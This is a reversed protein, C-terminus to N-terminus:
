KITQTTAGNMPIDQQSDVYRIEAYGGHICMSDARDQKM